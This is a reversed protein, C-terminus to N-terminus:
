RAKPRAKERTPTIPKRDYGEVLDRLFEAVDAMRADSLNSPEDKSTHIRANAWENIVNVANVSPALYKSIQGYTRTETPVLKMGPFSRLTQRVLPLVSDDKQVFVRLPCLAGGVCDANIVLDIKRLEAAFKKAYVPTGVNGFEEGTASVFRITRRPKTASLLRALELLVATGSGNDDAAPTDPAADRHAEICIEREGGELIGIVDRTESAYRRAEVQFEAQRGALKALKYGTNLSVSAVPMRELALERILKTAATDHNTDIVIVCAAGAHEAKLAFGNLRAPFPEFNGYVAVAKGKLLRFQGDEIDPESLVLPARVKGAPSYMNGIAPLSRGDVRLKTSILDWGTCPMVHSIVKLGLRLFHAEVYAASKEDGPTGIM